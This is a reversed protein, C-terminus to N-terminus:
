RTQFEKKISDIMTVNLKLNSNPKLMRKIFSIDKGIIQKM